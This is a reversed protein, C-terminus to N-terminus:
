YDDYEIFAYGVKLIIERIKGFKSYVKRLDENTVDKNLRAVYLQPNKYSPSPM